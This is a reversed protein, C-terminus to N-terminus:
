IRECLARAADSLTAISVKAGPNSEDDLWQAGLDPYGKSSATGNLAYTGSGIRVTLVSEVGTGECEVTAERAVLPWTGTFADATLDMTKSSVRTQAPPREALASSGSGGDSEGVSRAIAIAAAVAVVGVVLWTFPHTPRNM